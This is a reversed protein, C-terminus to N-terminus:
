ITSLVTDYSRDALFFDPLTAILYRSKACQIPSVQVLPPPLNLRGQFNDFRVLSFDDRQMLQNTKSKEKLTNTNHQETPNTGVIFISCHM